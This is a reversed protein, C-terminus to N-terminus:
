KMTPDNWDWGGTAASNWYRCSLLASKGSYSSGFTMNVNTIMGCGVYKATKAVMQLYHGTPKDTLWMKALTEALQTQNGAPTPGFSAAINEGESHTCAEIKEWGKVEICHVMKGGTKGAGLYEVWTKADSALTNNWVLPPVKAEARERNHIELIRNVIDASVNGTTNTPRSTPANGTTNTPPQQQGFGTTNTPPQQQPQGFGTNNTPPPQQQQPQGFGTNNTPPPQQQPQGFGTNNTPPQQQGFGTNNTPPQQQAQGFGTNNIPPQQQQPPPQPQGFGTNNTPPQQQQPPPQPQGFGTNNTPPQQQPQGFGTNNAPPPQQQPQGFGTTNSEEALAHNNNSPIATLVALILVGTLALFLPLIM